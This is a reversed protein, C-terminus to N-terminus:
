GFHQTDHHPYPLINSPPNPHSQLLAMTDGGMSSVRNKLFALSNCNHMKKLFLFYSFTHSTHSTQEKEKYAKHQKVKVLM